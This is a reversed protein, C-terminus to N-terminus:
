RSMDGRAPWSTFWGNEYPSAKRITRQVRADPRRGALDSDVRRTAPEMTDYPFQGVM